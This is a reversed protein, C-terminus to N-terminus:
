HSWQRVLRWKKKKNENQEQLEGYDFDGEKLKEKANLGYQSYIWMESEKKKEYENTTRKVGEVKKNYM